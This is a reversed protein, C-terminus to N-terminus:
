RLALWTVATAAGKPATAAGMPPLMDTKDASSDTVSRMSVYRGASGCLGPPLPDQLM